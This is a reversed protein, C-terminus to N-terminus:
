SKAWTGKIKKQKLSFCRCYKYQRNKNVFLWTFDTTWSGCGLKICEGRKIQLPDFGELWLWKVKVSTVWTSWKM